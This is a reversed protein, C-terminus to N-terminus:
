PAQVVGLAEMTRVLEAVSRANMKRMAHGRHIKVTIEAIGMRAAIQKNMLGDAVHRAVERERPTLSTWCTRADSLLREADLRRADSDLAAIVADIMDQDRFPKALFDMAGAKMAKVSMAIDGHGTMFIIPMHPRGAEVVAHQFALGSEGRLRVDLILCAPGAGRPAALFAETSGFAQVELNISRLLSALADRVLADDDVVYVIRSAPGTPSPTTCSPM